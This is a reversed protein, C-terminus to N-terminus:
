LGLGRGALRLNNGQIRDSYPAIVKAITQGDIIVPVTITQPGNQMMSPISGISNVQASNSTDIGISDTSVNSNVANAMAKSQRAIEGITSQIGLVFGEGTYEGMEMMVRSPSHIGLAGKIKDKITEAIDSVVNRVKGIMNQIGNILGQIINRGIEILNIGELFSKAQNWVEVIKEKAGTMKEYIASKLAEFKERVANKIGEVLNGITSKIGNWINSAAEKISTWTQFLWDKISTWIEIAKAKIQDWNKYLLIGIAILAAIVGIVILVPAAIAGMSIGLVGAATSIATIIPALAMFIGMLIGIVSVIAVITAALQPNNSIWEAIKSIIGAVIELLPYLAVQLDAMAQKMQIAPDANLSQTAANLNNQNAEATTLHNNMGLLTEAINTGQDEWMTGFIQVGLANRTTEDGVGMIAKSVEQMAKTGGEGGQAVAKGWSQLQQTSIGTGKLLEQTAKPVEQGFEALKIRGEKLGDLLNDVNWTGTEVGAAMIAQIETADFGAMKLQTGYESIIDLQEPPFGTKLLTYTLGLADQNSIGLTKSLENTEQILETFDVGDFAAAITAAGEVVAKNAEDSSDKNLAWQRRVGELAAEADVGYSSITSIAETVYAQSGEDLEMSVEIKTNFSSTDLSKDVIDGIGEVALAGAVLDVLSQGLEGVSEKAESISEKLKEMDKKTNKVGDSSDISKLSNKLKGLSNETYEIERKFARYQEEGIKGNSFQAEVQQEAEKLKNLKETTNEVQQALIKQKQALAEVNGPDFKLLRDVDKLENQLQISKSTVDKLANQLGTTNGDLEITIGKIRNAM